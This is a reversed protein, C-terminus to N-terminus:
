TYAAVVMICADYVVNRFHTRAYDITQEDFSGDQFWVTDISSGDLQGLVAMTARPPVVFNVLAVEEEVDLLSPYARVGEVRSEKRNVPVVEYGKALLFKVIRNGYKQPNNSAGVVAIRAAAGRRSLIDMVEAPVNSFQEM